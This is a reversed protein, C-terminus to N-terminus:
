IGPYTKSMVFDAHFMANRTVEILGLQKDDEELLKNLIGGFLSEKDAVQLEYKEPETCFFYAGTEFLLLGDYYDEVLVSAPIDKSALNFLDKEPDYKNDLNNLQESTMFYKLSGDLKEIVTVYICYSLGGRVLMNFRLGSIHLYGDIDDTKYAGHTVINGSSQGLVQVDTCNVEKLYNECDSGFLDRVLLEM